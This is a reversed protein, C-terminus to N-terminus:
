FVLVVGIIVVDKSYLAMHFIHVSKIPFNSNTGFIIDFKKSDKHDFSCESWSLQWALTNPSVIEIEKGLEASL